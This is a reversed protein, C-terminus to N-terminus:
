NNTLYSRIKDPGPDNPNPVEGYRGSPGHRFRYKSRHAHRRKVADDAFYAQAAALVDFSHSLKVFSSTVLFLVLECALDFALFSMTRRFKKATMRRTLYSHEKNPSVRMLPLIIMSSGSVLVESMESVFLNMLLRVAVKKHVSM